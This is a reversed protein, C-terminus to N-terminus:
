PPTEVNKDGRRYIRSPRKLISEFNWSIIIHFGFGLGFGLRESRHLSIKSDM